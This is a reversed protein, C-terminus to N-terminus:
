AATDEDGLDTLWAQQRAEFRDERAEWEGSNHEFERERDFHERLPGTRPSHDVVAAPAEPWPQLPEHPV